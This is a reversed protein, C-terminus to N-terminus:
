SVKVPQLKSALEALEAYTGTGTVLTTLQVAGKPRSLLSRQVKQDRNYKVWTRGGARLSGDTAARNTQAAVWEDTADKTQEVAVYRAAPSTYGAHWTMLGDTSRVYRVSTAKWGQPLGVPEDIPWGTERQVDVARAHVDVPPGSVTSVRPVIAILLAMLALVVLLSRAMNAVSGM